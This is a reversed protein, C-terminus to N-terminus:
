TTTDPQTGMQAYLEALVPDSTVIQAFAKHWPERGELLGVALGAQSAFALYATRGACPWPSRGCPSHLRHHEELLDWIRLEFAYQQETPTGSDLPRVWREDLSIALAHRLDTQWEKHTRAM